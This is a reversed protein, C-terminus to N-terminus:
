VLCAHRLHAATDPARIAAIHALRRAIVTPTVDAYHPNHPQMARHWAQLTLSMAIRTATLLPVLDIEEPQLPLIEHYGSIFLAIADVDDMDPALQATAGTAVDIAVTTEVMDGFDILGAFRSHDAPDVLTNGGNMDNYLVQRRLRPLAPTVRAEFEALIDELVASADASPMTDAVERLRLAHQMDWILAHGSAPHQFTKLAREVRALARGCAVRQAPSRRSSHLLDGPVWSLLRVRQIGGTEHPVLTEVQGDPMAIVRPVALGPDIKAIHDLAKIQMDVVAANEVPNAFKLVFERGDDASFHFNRDREGTLAHAAGAIGWHDRAVREATDPSVDLAHVTMVSFIDPQETM